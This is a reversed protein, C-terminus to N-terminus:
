FRGWEMALGEIPDCYFRNSEGPTELLFASIVRPQLGLRAGM